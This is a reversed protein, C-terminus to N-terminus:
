GKRPDNNSQAALDAEVAEMKMLAVKLWAVCAPIKDNRYFPDLETGRIENALEPAVLSIANFLAQGARWEKNRALMGACVYDIIQWLNM